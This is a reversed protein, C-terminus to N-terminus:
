ERKPLGVGGEHVTRHHRRCLLILNDLSTPGDDAWHEVHHADCWRHPRDCGSFRCHRDRIILAKRIAAPVTRTARDVDLVESEGRTIVRSVSSDCAIRRATEPTVVPGDDFECPRGPEGRLAELSLIVSVQPRLSGSVPTDKHALHDACLDVLADARRQAPECGDEPNLQQADTLSRLATLVTHGGEPDLEGDIRVMGGMTESVHLHRRRHLHEADDQAAGQDAAQKWYEIARRADSMSLSSVTEVLLQVDRDFFGASVKAAGLLLGVRPRDLVATAFAEQVQPNQQLVRAEGVRRSAEGASDGRDRLLSATTLHGTHEFLADRDVEALAEAAQAEMMTITRRLRFYRDVPGEDWPYAGDVQKPKLTTM